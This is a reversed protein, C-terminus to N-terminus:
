CLSNPTPSAEPFASNPTFTINLMNWCNKAFRCGIFFHQVTEEIQDQWLVCQYSDLHMNRRLINKTRLRDMILLWFFVKHKPQCFCEWLWKIGIHVQRHAILLAYAKSPSFRSGLFLVMQRSQQNAAPVPYHFASWETPQFGRHFPTPQLSQQYTWTWLIRKPRTQNRQFACWNGLLM